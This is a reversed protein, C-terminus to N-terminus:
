SNDRAKKKRLMKCLSCTYRNAPIYHWSVTREGCIHCPPYYVRFGRNDKGFPIKDRVADSHAM